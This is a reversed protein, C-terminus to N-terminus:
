SPEAEAARRRQKSGSATPTESEPGPSGGPGTAEPPEDGSMDFEGFPTDLADDWTFDPNTRSKLCWIMLTIREFTDNGELMENPNRGGLATRARIMDRPTLLDVHLRPKRAPAAAAVVVAKAEATTPQGNATGTM